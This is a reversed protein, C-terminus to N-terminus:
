RLRGAPASGSPSTAGGRVRRATDAAINALRRGTREVMEGQRAADAMMTDLPGLAPKAPIAVKLFKGISEIWDAMLELPPVIVDNLITLLKNGIQEMVAEIRATADRRKDESQALGRASPALADGKRMDRKVKNVDMEAFVAAMSGSSEAYKRQADLAASSAGAVAKRFDNLAGAVAIAIGVPAPLSPPWERRVPPM